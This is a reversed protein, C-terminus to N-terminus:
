RHRGAGCTTMCDLSIPSSRGTAAHANAGSPLVSAVADHDPRRFSHRAGPESFSSVTCACSVRM